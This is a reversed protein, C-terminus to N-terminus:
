VGGASAGKAAGGDRRSDHLTEGWRRPCSARPVAPLIGASSKGGVAPVAVVPVGEALAGLVAEAAVLAGAVATAAEAIDGEAEVM